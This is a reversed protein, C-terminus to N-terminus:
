CIRNRRSSTIVDNDYMKSYMDKKEQIAEQFDDMTKYDESDVIEITELGYETILSIYRIM